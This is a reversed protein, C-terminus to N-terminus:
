CVDLLLMKHCMELPWGSGRVTEIPILGAPNSYLVLLAAAITQVVRDNLQPLITLPPSPVLNRHLDVDKALDTVLFDAMM